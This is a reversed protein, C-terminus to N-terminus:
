AMCPIEGRGEGVGSYVLDCYPSGNDGKAQDDNSRRNDMIEVVQGPEQCPAEQQHLADLGLRFRFRARLCVWEQLVGRVVGMGDWEDTNKVAAVALREEAVDSRIVRGERRRM